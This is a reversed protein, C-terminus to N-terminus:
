PYHGKNTIVATYIMWHSKAVWLELDLDLAQAADELHTPPMVIGIVVPCHSLTVRCLVKLEKIKTDLTSEYKRVEEDFRDSIMKISNDIM